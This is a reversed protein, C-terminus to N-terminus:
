LLIEQRLRERAIQCYRESIEIGIFNRKLQKCAVATTGSGLFPDLVLDGEKSLLQIIKKIGMLDKPTSHGWNNEEVKIPINWVDTPVNNTRYHTGQERSFWLVKDYKAFTAKGNLMGNSKWWIFEWCYNMNEILWKTFPIHYKVGIIIVLNDKTIRKCETLWENLWKQQELKELEDNAYERGANYPPDTLVLDICKDPLQKMIELCDGCIIKNLYKELM